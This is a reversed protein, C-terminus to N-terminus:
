KGEGRTPSETSERNDTIRSITKEARGDGAGLDGVGRAAAAGESQAIAIRALRDAHDIKAQEVEGEPYQRARSATNTSVLGAELDSRITEPDVAVIPSSDIEKNITAVVDIPSVYGVLNYAIRKAVERQFTLSPVTPLLEKLRRSEEQRDADSKLSYKTPYTIVVSENNGVYNAWIEAIKREGHELELGIYSLGAELGRDDMSKSEASSRNPDLSEVTLNVMQRIEKILQEQKKMSADLPESSPNIFGPRELGRPYRRGHLSGTRLESNSATTESATGQAVPDQNMPRLNNAFDLGPDYQEVYFPYNAKFAYNLDSSALNLLAIQYDAADTLLSFPLQFIVFPIRPLNLIVENTIVNDVYDRVRVGSSELTLLRYSEVLTTTLGLDDIGPEYRHLLVATLNNSSDYHWNRIDVADYVYLYPNSRVEDAKSANPPLRPRDIYVGVKGIPLLRSLIANGVFSTMTNGSRDVGGNIGACASTYTPDGNLRRIDVLRQFIANKIEVVAAKAHAPCYAIAKRIAFDNDSERISFKELYRDIFPYGGDYTYQYKVWYDYMASYDPHTSTSISQAM